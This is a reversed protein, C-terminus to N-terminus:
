DYDEEADEDEEDFEDFEDPDTIEPEIFDATEFRAVLNRLRAVDVELNALRSKLINIAQERTTAEYYDEPPDDCFTDTPSSPGDTHYYAAGEDNIGYTHDQPFEGGDHGGPHEVLDCFTISNETTEKLM